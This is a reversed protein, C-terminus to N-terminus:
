NISLSKKIITDVDNGTLESLTSLIGKSSTINREVRTIHRLQADTPTPINSTLAPMVGADDELIKKLSLLLNDVRNDGDILLNWESIINHVVKLRLNVMFDMDSAYVMISSLLFQQPGDIGDVAEFSNDMAGTYESEMFGSNNVFDVAADNGQRAADLEELVFQLAVRQSSIRSSVGKTIENETM